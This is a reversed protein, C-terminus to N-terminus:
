KNKWKIKEIPKWYKCIIAIFNHGKLFNDETIGSVCLIHDPFIDLLIREGMPSFTNDFVLVKKGYYASRILEFDDEKFCGGEKYEEPKSSLQYYDDDRKQYVYALRNTQKIRVIDNRYFKM